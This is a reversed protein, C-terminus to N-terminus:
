PTAAQTSFGFLYFHAQTPAVPTATAPLNSAEEFRYTDIWETAGARMLNTTATASASIGLWYRGPSLNVDTCDAYQVQSATGQAASASTLRLNPKGALDTYIGVGVTTAANTPTGNAWWVRKATVRGRTTPVVIPHYVTRNASEWLQTGPYTGQFYIPSWPGYTSVIDLVPEILVKPGFSM